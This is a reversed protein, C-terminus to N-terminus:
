SRTLLLSSASAGGGVGVVAVDVNKVQRDGAESRLQRIAEALFGWGHMRGGSLQGGFTNLPLDGGLSIRGGGEVYPGSEGPGCFGLAELWFLAFPSFADYVQAVDVDAPKLSTMSWMQAAADHTAMTTLDPWQEWLPRHRMAGGVAEVEVWQKLDSVTDRASVVVACSGDVTIDCDYLSLPSSITRSSLYEDMSLPKTLIADPNRAAHARETIALWGLQEKSTGFEHMHRQFYFSAFNTPSVAGGAFLWALPGAAQKIMEDHGRRPGGQASAENTTRYVVAHRCMGFSAAALASFLSLFQAPGQSTALHWNLELGLGDQVDYLDPGSFGPNLEEGPGPFTALGDIDSPNLGADDIAALIADMTLQYPSETLRRGIKSQGLGSIVASRRISRSTSVIRM